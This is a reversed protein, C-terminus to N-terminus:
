KGFDKCPISRGERPGDEPAGEDTWAFHHSDLVAGSKENLVLFEGRDDEGRCEWLSNELFLCSVGAEVIEGSKPTVRLDVTSQIEGSDRRIQVKPFVGSADFELCEKTAARAGSVSLIAFGILFFLKFLRPGM